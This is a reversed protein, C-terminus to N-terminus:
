LCTYTHTGERPSGRSCLFIINNIILQRVETATATRGLGFGFGFTLPLLVGLRPEPRPETGPFITGVFGKYTSEEKTGQKLAEPVRWFYFLIFLILTPYPQISHISLNM